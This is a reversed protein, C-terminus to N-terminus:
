EVCIASVAKALGNKDFVDKATIEGKKNFLYLCPLKTVNYLRLSSSASGDGDCVNIWPFRNVISHWYAKDTTICVSYIELGRGKFQNYINELEANFMKQENNSPEWFLLIFPRGALSTLNRVESKTDTISLEPFLAQPTEKMRYSLEMGNFYASAEKELVKVYPSQPYEVKLSDALQKFYVGDTLESFMPFNENFHRYLNRINTFSYPHNVLHKVAAQKQAVYLKGLEYRIRQVSEVDGIESCAIMQVSLSDFSKQSKDIERNIQQLLESEKSGKVKLNRGNTDVEVKVHDGPSLLLSALQIGNYSLYYFNPSQYPLEFKASAKGSANTKLTDAVEVKNINLVSLVVDREAAGELRLDISAKKGNCSALALAAAVICIFQRKM